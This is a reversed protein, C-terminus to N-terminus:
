NYTVTVSFPATVFGYTNAPVSLTGGVTVTSSELGENFPTYKANSTTTPAITV